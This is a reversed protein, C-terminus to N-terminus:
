EPAAEVAQAALAFLRDSEARADDDDQEADWRGLEPRTEAWAMVLEAAMLRLGAREARRAGRVTISASRASSLAAAADRRIDSGLDKTTWLASEIKQMTSNM